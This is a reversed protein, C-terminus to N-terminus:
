ELAFEFTSVVRIEKRPTSTPSYPASEDHGDSGFIRIAGQNASVIHGVRAGSDAAFQRATDRANRTAEALLGPRLANFKSVIYRPNASGTDTTDLLVGTRMLADTASLASQVAAVNATRVVIATSAVYRLKVQRSDYDQALKDVVRTPQVELEADKFGRERLFAAVADRDRHLEDYLEPLANGARRFGLQWEAQDSQVEREVLGKVTVTRVESKFRSMGRGVAVGGAAIGAALVLAAFAAATAQMRDM